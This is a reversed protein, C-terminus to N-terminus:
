MNCIHFNGGSLRSPMGYIHVLKTSRGFRKEDRALLFCENTERCRRPARHWGPASGTFWDSPWNRLGRQAKRTRAPSSQQHISGRSVRRELETRKPVLEACTCIRRGSPLLPKLSALLFLSTFLRCPTIVKATEAFTGRGFNSSRSIKRLKTTRDVATLLGCVIRPANRRKLGRRWWWWWWWRSRSATTTMKSAWWPMMHSKRIGRQILTSSHRHSFGNQHAFM